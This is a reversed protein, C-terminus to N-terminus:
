WTDLWSLFDQMVGEDEVECQAEVMVEICKQMDCDLINSQCRLNDYSVELAYMKSCFKWVGVKDVTFEKSATYPSDCQQTPTEQYRVTGDSDKLAFGGYLFLGNNDSLDTECTLPEEEWLCGIDETCQGEPVWQCETPGTCEGEGCAPETVINFNVIDGIHYTASVALTSLLMM